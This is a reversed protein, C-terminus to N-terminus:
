DIKIVDIVKKMQKQISEQCKDNVFHENNPDPVTTSVKREINRQSLFVRRRQTMFLGSEM